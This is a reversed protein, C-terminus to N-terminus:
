KLLKALGFICDKCISNNGGVWYSGVADCLDCHQTKDYEVPIDGNVKQKIVLYFKNKNTEKKM